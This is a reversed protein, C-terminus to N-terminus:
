KILLFFTIIAALIDYIAFWILNKRSNGVIKLLFHISAIGVVFAVLTPWIYVAPLVGSGLELISAGFIAPIAMLFSFKMADKIEIGRLMGASITAGSRSIGPFIALAQAFGIIWSDNYDMNKKRNSVHFSAILLIVSTIAFGIGVIILSSFASEFLKKFIFGIVAAPITAVIILFGMKSEKSKWDGKLLSEVIDVIDRGFYVFVAMLTGFHLAVDFQLSNTFGILRSFVVLHGSSSIPFWESIGQIFALILMQIMELM